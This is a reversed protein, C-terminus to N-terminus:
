YRARQQLLHELGTQWTTFYACTLTCSAQRSGRSHFLENTYELNDGRKEFSSNQPLSKHRSPHWPVAQTITGAATDHSHGLREPKGRSSRLKAQHSSSGPTQHASHPQTRQRRPASGQVEASRADPLVSRCVSAEGLMQLGKADRCDRLNIYCLSSNPREPGTARVFWNCLEQSSYSTGHINGSRTHQKRCSGVSPSAAPATQPV